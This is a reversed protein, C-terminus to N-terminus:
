QTTLKKHIRSVLRKFMHTLMENLHNTGGANMGWKRYVPMHRLLRKSGSKLKWVKGGLSNRHTEQGPTGLSSRESSLV